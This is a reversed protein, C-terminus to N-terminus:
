PGAADHLLSEDALCDPPQNLILPTGARRASIPRLSSVRGGLGVRRGSEGDPNAVVGHKRKQVQM